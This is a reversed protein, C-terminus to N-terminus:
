DSRAAYALLDAAITAAILLALAAGLVGAGLSGIVLGIGAPVLAGGLGAAGMQMGIAQGAHDEGVRDATTLTLLPFVPAAFGGILIIGAVSPWAWGPVVLLGAGVAMVVLCVLVVRASHLREAVLGYLVRGVFLSGWYASVCIGAVADPVGRGETLLTYAWLGTGVEVGTYMAFILVGLWAMPMAWTRVPRGAPDPTGAPLGVGAATPDVTSRAPVGDAWARLTLAFALALGGQVVAVAGYGWRWALGAALVSTMVLPGLTAGLGFAAHLWNMNRAGFHEAAYTNLGSDIAGSGLGSLLACGVVVGLVPALAYGLLAAAVMTTSVALLLGVGIRHLLFGASVSSILYGTTSLTLVFGVAGIPVGFEARMSPWAVGLLGDPLGLTVFGLYALVIVPAIRVVLRREALRVMPEITGSLAARLAAQLKGYRLLRAVM